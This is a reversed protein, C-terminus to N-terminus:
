DHRPNRDTLEPRAQYAGGAAGSPDSRDFLAGSGGPHRPAGSASRGLPDITDPGEQIGWTRVTPDQVVFLARDRLVVGNPTGYAVVLRGGVVLLAPDRAIEGDASIALPGIWESRGAPLVALEIRGAPRVEVAVYVNGAADVALAPAVQDSGDDLGFLTPETWRGNAGLASLALDYEAGNRYAWASWVVGHVPDAITVPEQDHRGPAYREPLLSPPAASVAGVALLIGLVLSTALARRERM